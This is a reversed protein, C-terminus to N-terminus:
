SRGHAHHKRLHRRRDRKRMGTITTITTATVSEYITIEQEVMVLELVENGMTSYMTSVIRENAPLPDPTPTPTPSPSPTSSPTPTPSDAPFSSSSAIFIGGPMYTEGTAISSGASYSVTPVVASTAAGGSSGGPTAYAPGAQIQVNGPLTDMPGTLNDAKQDDPMPFKCSSYTNSDQITFLPCDSILGSPNTCTDVASQLFNEDWGMMFDGHYGYGSLHNTSPQM